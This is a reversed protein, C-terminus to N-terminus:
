LLFYRIQEGTLFSRAQHYTHLIQASCPETDFRRRLNPQLTWHMHPFPTPTPPRLQGKLSFFSYSSSFFLLCKLSFVWCPYLGLNSSPETLLCPLNWGQQLTPCTDLLLPCLARGLEGSPGSVGASSKPKIKLPLMSRDFIGSCLLTM